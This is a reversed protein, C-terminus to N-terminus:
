LVLMIDLGQLSGNLEAVSRFLWVVWKLKYSSPRLAVFDLTVLCRPYHLSLNDRLVQNPTFLCSVCM